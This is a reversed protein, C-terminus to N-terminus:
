ASASIPPLNEWSVAFSLDGSDFQKLEPRLADLFYIHGTGNSPDLDASAVRIVGYRKISCAGSSDSIGIEGNASVSSFSQGDIWRFAFTNVTDM